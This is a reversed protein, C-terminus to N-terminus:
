QRTAEIRPSLVGALRTEFGAAGASRRLAPTTKLATTYHRGREGIELHRRAKVSAGYFLEQVVGDAAEGRWLDNIEAAEHLQGLTTPIFTIRRLRRSPIPRELEQMPGLAIRYYLEHAHPHAPEGPLIEARTRIQYRLARAYYRVHFADAGFVRTQYFALYAAAVPRPARRLPIRYWGEQVVRRWDDQNNILVVLVPTSGAEGDYM